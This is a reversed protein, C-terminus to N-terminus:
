GSTPAIVERSWMMSRAVQRAASSSSRSDPVSISRAVMSPTRAASRPPKYHTPRSSPVVERRGAEPSEDLAAPLLDAISEFHWPLDEDGDAWEYATEYIAEDDFM